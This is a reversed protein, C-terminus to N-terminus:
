FREEAERHEALQLRDNVYGLLRSGWTLVRPSQRAKGMWGEVTGIQSRIRDSEPGMWTGSMFQGVLASAVGDDEGFEEILYQTVAPLEGGAVPAASALLRARDPDGGVWGQAVQLDVM